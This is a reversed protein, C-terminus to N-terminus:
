GNDYDQMRREYETKKSEPAGEESARGTYGPVPLSAAAAAAASELGSHILSSLSSLPSVAKVLVQLMCSSYLM